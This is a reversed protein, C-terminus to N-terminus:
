ETRLAQMPDLRSANWAPVLCAVIAVALLLGSVLVFVGVDLPETGYLMTRILRAVGAAGALGLVLGALAPRLGDLLVLRLVQTRPAGLAIRVGLEKTRQTVLYALVGYLGAAALVLAIGAFTVVLLSDFQSSLTSQGISERLTIVESVPLDPDMVNMIKQVPTAQAEVDQTSRLM